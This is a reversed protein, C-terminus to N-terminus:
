RTSNQIYSPMWTVWGTLVRGNSPVLLIQPLPFGFNLWDLLSCTLKYGEAHCPRWILATYFWIGFHTPRFRCVLPFSSSGVLSHVISPHLHIRSGFIEESNQETLRNLWSGIFSLIKFPHAGSFASGLDWLAPDNKQGAQAELHLCWGLKRVTWLLKHWIKLHHRM